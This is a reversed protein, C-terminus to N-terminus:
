HPLTVTHLNYCMVSCEHLSEAVNCSKRHVELGCRSSKDLERHGCNSRVPPKIPIIYESIIGYKRKAYLGM